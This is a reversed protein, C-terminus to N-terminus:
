DGTRFKKESSHLKKRIEVVLTVSEFTKWRSIFNKEYIRVVVFAYVNYLTM